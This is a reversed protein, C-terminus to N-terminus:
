EMSFAESHIASKRVGTERLQRTLSNMMAPPGCLFIDKGDFTESYSLIFRTDIFGQQQSSDFPIVRFCGGRTMAVQAINEWEIVESKDHVSYYLDIAFGNAPLSKLMSLFPTIGIGGAIWIQSPNRYNYYTFRGYAGEIKAIMGPQIHTLNASYDGLAKATIELPGGDPASSISFPHWEKSIGVQKAHLFQIYIFQGPKYDIAHGIPQLAIRTASSAPRDVAIVQYRFRRVFINPLLTRYIFAIIGLGILVLLYYKLPLNSTIDSSIFIIHLGAILFAVGLFKHTLLWIQYPPRIFLTLILLVVMGWFAVIGGFIAWQQLVDAHAPHQTNFLAEIPILDHPILLFGADRLSTNIFQLSLLLPHFCLFILALGGVLHHAIYVRNLGGFARELFRLRTAYIFNLSYLVIGIIGTIRGITLMMLSFDTTFIDNISQQRVWLFLAIVCFIITVFWGIAGAPLLRLISHKQNM